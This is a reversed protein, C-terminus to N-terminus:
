EFLMIVPVTDLPEVAGLPVTHAVLVAQAATLPQLLVRNEITKGVLVIKVSVARGATGLESTNLGAPVFAKRPVSRLRNLVAPNIIRLGAVVGGPTLM